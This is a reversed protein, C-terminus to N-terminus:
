INFLNKFDDMSIEQPELTVQKKLIQILKDEFIKDGLSRYTEKKGLMEKVYEDLMNQPVEYMGYYQAFQARVTREAYAQMESEDVTIGNEDILHEKILQFKLDKAIKPYDEEVSEPTRKKDSALLWRKLFADPLEMDSAKEVLLKQADLIFKYDSEPIFQQALDEKIKGRFAEESDVTGEGFVKDFLEQNVEAAKFHSIETIEYSFDGTYNKVADKKVQLFSALEGENGDYAKHPNFIVISNLKASIFKAKEEENKMYVPLLVAKEVTIGNAEPEGNENLEVLVGKVLDNDEVEETTIQKGYKNKYYEIQRDIMEESVQILYYPMKDDTTLKVDIEPALGADFVFTFDEQGDIETSNEEEVPLPEGLLDLDNNKIYDALSKVLLKNVEETVVSKGYKQRLFSQPVMGKRFGPIVANKRLDKLSNEVENAYDAKVVEVTITANVSDTKNLTVNM